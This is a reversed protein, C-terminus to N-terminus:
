SSRDARMLRELDADGGADVQTHRAVLAVVRPRSSAVTLRDAGLAAHHRLQWLGRRWRPGTASGLWGVLRPSLGELIVFAIREIVFLDGKGVDHLLAAVRLDDSPVEPATAEEIARLVVLSHRRDRREMHLFLRLENNTLLSRVERADGPDLATDFGALFQHARYRAVALPRTLTSM